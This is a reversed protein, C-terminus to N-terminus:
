IPEVRGPRGQATWGLARQAQDRLRFSPLEVLYYSLEACGLILVLNFPFHFTYPGTFLQQWLYLSYSIRGLHKLVAFNLVRGLVSEHQFVAFLLIATFAVNELSIGVTLLYLGKWRLTAWTDFTLLFLISLGAAFPSMAWGLLRDTLKKDILLSLLCGTMITDLHTHLMMDIHTRFGPFAFYSVVRIVPSLTIVGLAIRINVRKSFAVMCLPWFLYFQEELSLSWSHGLPWLEAIPAYNWTYTAAALFAPLTIPLVHLLGLIGVVLLFVYFPPFIRFTRRLYFVKLNISHDRNLEKLLLHTILFGSIIFFCSVGQHGNRFAANFPIRDLLQSRTHGLIVALM